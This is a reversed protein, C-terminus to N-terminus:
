FSIKVEFGATTSSLDFKSYRTHKEESHYASLSLRISDSLDYDLNASFTYQVFNSIPRYDSLFVEYDGTQGHRYWRWQSEAGASLSIRETIEWWADLAVRHSDFDGISKHLTDGSDEDRNTQRSWQHRLTLLLNRPWRSELLPGALWEEYDTNTDGHLRYRRNEYGGEIGLSLWPLLYYAIEGEADYQAYDDEDEPKNYDRWQQEALFNMRWRRGTYDYRETLVHRSSNYDEEDESHYEQRTFRYDLEVRHYRGWRYEAALRPSERWYGEDPSANYESRYDLTNEIRLTLRDDPRYRYRAYFSNEYYDDRLADQYNRIRFDNELYLYARESLDYEAQMEIREQFYEDGERLRNSWAYRSGAAPRYTLDLRLESFADWETEDAEATIEYGAVRAAELALSESIAMSQLAAETDGASLQARAEDRYFYADELLEEAEESGSEEVLVAVEALLEELRYLSEEPDEGVRSTVSQSVFRDYDIGFRLNGSWELRPTTSFREPYYLQGTEYAKPITEIEATAARAQLASLRESLQELRKQLDENFENQGFASPIYIAICQFILFYLVLRLSRSHMSTPKPYRRKM